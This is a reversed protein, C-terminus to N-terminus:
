SFCCSLYNQNPLEFDIDKIPQFFGPREKNIIYIKGSKFFVALLRNDLSFSIDMVPSQVLLSEYVIQMESLDLVRLFGSKFGIALLTDTHQNDKQDVVGQNQCVVRVPMDNQSIFENIQEMSEAHWIKM